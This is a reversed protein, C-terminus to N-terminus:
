SKRTLQSFPQAGGTSETGTFSVQTWVTVNATDTYNRPCSNSSQATKILGYGLKVSLLISQGSM